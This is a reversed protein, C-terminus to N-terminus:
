CRGAAVLGIRVGPTTGLSPSVVQGVGRALSNRRVEAPTLSVYEEFRLLEHHLDSLGEDASTLGGGERGREWGGSSATDAHRAEDGGGGCSGGSGGGGDYSPVANAGRGESASARQEVAKDAVMGDEVQSAEDDSSALDVPEVSGGSGRGRGGGHPPRDVLGLMWPAEWREEAERTAEESRHKKRAGGGDGGGSGSGGASFSFGLMRRGHGPLCQRVPANHVDPWVRGTNGGWGGGLGPLAVGGGTPVRVGGDSVRGPYYATPFFSSREPTRRRGPGHNGNDNNNNNGGASDDPLGAEARARKRRWVSLRAEVNQQLAERQAARSAPTRVLDGNESLNAAAAAAAAAPGPSQAAAAEEREERRQLAQKAKRSLRSREAAEARIRQMSVHSLHYTSRNLPNTVLWANPIEQTKSILLLSRTFSREKLYM